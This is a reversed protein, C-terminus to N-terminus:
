DDDAADTPALDITLRLPRDAEDVELLAPFFGDGWGTMFGTVGYGGIEICGAESANARIQSLIAFSDTHPRFDFAFRLEGESRLADLKQALTVADAVPLNVFGYQNSELTPAEFRRAVEEGDRGWFAVDALGDTPESENWHDIAEVDFMGIRACDVAVKGLDVVRSSTGAAFEIMVQARGGALEGETLRTGTVPYRGAPVNRVMVANVYGHVPLETKGTEFAAIAAAKASGKEAFAGILGFDFVLLTGSRVDVHGLVEATADPAPM